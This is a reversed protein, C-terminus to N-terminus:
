GIIPCINTEKGTKNGNWSREVASRMFRFMAAFCTCHCPYREIGSNEAFFDVTRRLQESAPEKLHVGGLVSHVRTEGTVRKTQAIINRIGAHSCGTISLGEKDVYDDPM